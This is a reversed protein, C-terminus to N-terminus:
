MVTFVGASTASGGPTTVAIKGTVAGTPVTATVQTASNVTFATAKVGGFTVKSVQTLGTGSITVQTGVPGSTPNFSTITPVVKFIKSSKLTSSPTTVTVSGTTGTVPVVATLYTDSVVIFSSAGTGFKVSTTGTLGDGLIEVTQGPKGSTTRLRAFPALGLDLSYLRGGGSYNSVPGNVLGYLKGNTHQTQTAQPQSPESSGFTHLVKYTGSKTLKFLVGCGAVSCTTDGGYQTSGYLNGDTAEIVGANPSYGFTKNNNKDFPYLIKLTGSTTLRFVEGSASPVGSATTGYLNGDSAQILPGIPGSGDSGSFPYVIKVVGSPSFRFVTGNGSTSTGYFNGDSAQVVPARSGFPILPSSSSCLPTFKGAPTIKYATGRSTVGYFNSDSGQIPAGYPNGGDPKGTTPCSTGNTGTFTYLTTIMPTSGMTIKFITGFGLGGAYTTGYFNGDTGLTLGGRPMVGNAGDFTYMSVLLDADPDIGFATGDNSTGGIPMTAYLNADRGQALIDPYKPNCGETKCNFDHIPTYSQATMIGPKAFVVALVLVAVSAQRLSMSSDRMSDEQSAIKGPTLESTASFSVAFPRKFDTITIM